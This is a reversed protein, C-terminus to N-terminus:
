PDMQTHAHRKKWLSIWYYFLKLSYMKQFFMLERVELSSPNAPPQLPQLPQMPEPSHPEPLHPVLQLTLYMEVLLHITEDSGLVSIHTWLAKTLLALSNSTFDGALLSHHSTGELKSAHNTRCISQICWQSCWMQRNCLLFNAVRHWYVLFSTESNFVSCWCSQPANVDLLLGKATLLSNCNM